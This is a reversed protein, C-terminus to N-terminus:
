MSRIKKRNGFFTIRKDIITGKSLLINDIQVSKVVKANAGIALKPTASLKDEIDKVCIRFRISTGSVLFQVMNDSVYDECYLKTGVLLYLLNDIRIDENSVVYENGILIEM